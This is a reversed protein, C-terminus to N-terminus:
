CLEGNYGKIVHFIYPAVFDVPWAIGGHRRTYTLWPRWPLAKPQNIQKLSTLVGRRTCAATGANAECIGAAGALQKIPVGAASARLGYDLDGLGHVFRADIHGVADVAARNLLVVNGNMTDCRLPRSDIPVPLLRLRGWHWQRRFGGYTRRGSNDETAGVVIAPDRTGPIFNVLRQIASPVLYTDDNLWLLLDAPGRMAEIMARRMGMSWYFTNPVAIVKAQPFQVTVHEATGDSSSADALFVQADLDPCMAASDFFATLSRLTCLRRNHSTLCAALIM